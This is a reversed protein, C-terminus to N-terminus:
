QLCIWAKRGARETGHCHVSDGSNGARVRNKRQSTIGIDCGSMLEPMNKVDFLVTINERENYTMLYEVNEKARGLVIVFEIEKYKETSIMELLRDSYNQPDAGGFSIFVKQVTEKILIPEYFMFLKSSIYYDEGAKLYSLESDKLLANIVLDAKYIGEGDDEFNVIKAKPLAKKVAIMYDISTSLIDNIFLDYQNQKLKELLEGISDVAILNHTTVGFVSRDTQNSDYYIDPKSDFEDALELARYIHGIGRKTNGNM